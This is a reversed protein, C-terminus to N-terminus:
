LLGRQQQRIPVSVCRCVCRTDSRRFLVAAAGWGYGGHGGGMAAGGGALAQQGDGAVGDGTGPQWYGADAQVPWIPRNRNSQLSACLGADRCPKRRACRGQQHVQVCRVGEMFGRRADWRVSGGGADRVVAGGVRRAEATDILCPRLQLHSLCAWTKLTLM